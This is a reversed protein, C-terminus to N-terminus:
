YNWSLVQMEYFKPKKKKNGLFVGRSVCDTSVLFANIKGRHFALWNIIAFIPTGGSPFFGKYPATQIIKQHEVRSEAASAVM